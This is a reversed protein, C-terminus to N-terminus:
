PFVLPNDIDSLVFNRECFSDVWQFHEGGRCVLGSPLSFAEGGISHRKLVSSNDIVAGSIREDNIRLQL